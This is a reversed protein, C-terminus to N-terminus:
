QKVGVFYISNVTNSAAANVRFHLNFKLLKADFTNNECSDPIEIPQNRYSLLGIGINRLQQGNVEQYPIDLLTDSKSVGVVEILQENSLGKINIIM